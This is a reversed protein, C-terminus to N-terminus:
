LADAVPPCAPAPRPDPGPRLLGSVPPEPGPPADPEAGPEPVAALGPRAGPGPREPREPRAGTGSPLPAGAVVPRGDPRVLGPELGPADAAAPPGDPRVLGPELGPADAAAPQLGVLEPPPWAPQRPPACPEPRPRWPWVAFAKQCASRGWAM